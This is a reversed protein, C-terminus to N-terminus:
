KTHSQKESESKLVTMRFTTNQQKNKKECIRLFFHSCFVGYLCLYVCLSLSVVFFCFGSQLGHRNDEHVTVLPPDDKSIMSVLGQLPNEGDTDAVVFDTGLDTFSYGFVGCVETAIFHIGNEHCSKNIELQQELSYGVLVVM